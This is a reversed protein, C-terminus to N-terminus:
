SEVKVWTAKKQGDIVKFKYSVKQGKNLVKPDDKHPTSIASFHVFIEEGGGNPTIVGYGDKRDFWKVVGTYAKGDAYTPLSGFCLLGILVLLVTKKM